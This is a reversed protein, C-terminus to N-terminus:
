IRGEPDIKVVHEDESGDDRPKPAASADPWAELTLERRLM